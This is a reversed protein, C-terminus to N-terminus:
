RSLGAIWADVLDFYSKITPTSSSRPRSIWGSM